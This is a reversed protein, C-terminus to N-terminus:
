HAKMLSREGLTELPETKDGVHVDIGLVQLAVGEGRHEESGLPENLLLAARDELATGEEVVVLVQNALGSPVGSEVEVLVQAVVGVEVRVEDPVVRQARHVHRIQHLGEVEGVDQGRPRDGVLGLLLLDGEDRVQVVHIEQFGREGVDLGHGLTRIKNESDAGLLLRSLDFGSALIQGVVHGHAEDLVTPPVDAREQHAALVDDVVIVQDAEGM